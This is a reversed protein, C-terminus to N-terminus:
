ELKMHQTQSISLHDNYLNYFNFILILINPNVAETMFTESKRTENLSLLIYPYTGGRGLRGQM